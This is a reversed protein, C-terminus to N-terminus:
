GASFPAGVCGRQIWAAMGRCWGPGFHAAVMSEFHELQEGRLQLATEQVAHGVQQIGAVIGFLRRQSLSAAHRASRDAELLAQAQWDVAQDQNQLAPAQPHGPAPPQACATGSPSAPALRESQHTPIPARISTSSSHPVSHWSQGFRVGRGTNPPPPRPHPVRDRPITRSPNSSSNPQMVNHIGCREPSLVPFGREIKIKKPMSEHGSPSGLRRKQGQNMITSDHIRQVQEPQWVTYDKPRYTPQFATERILLSSTRGSAIRYIIDHAVLAEEHKEYVLAFRVHRPGNDFIHVRLINRRQGFEARIDSEVVQKVGTRTVLLTCFEQSTSSTNMARPTQALVNMPRTKVKELGTANLNHGSLGKSDNDISSRTRHSQKGTRGGLVLDKVPKLPAAELSARPEVGSDTLAFGQKTPAQSGRVPGPSPLITNVQPSIVAIRKSVDKLTGKAAPYFRSASVSRGTFKGDYTHGSDDKHNQANGARPCVVVESTEVNRPRAISSTNAANHSDHNFRSDADVDSKSDPKHESQFEGAVANSGSQYQSKPGMETDIESDDSSSGASDDDDDTSHRSDTHKIAPKQTRDLANSRDSPAAHRALAPPVQSSGSMTSGHQQKVKTIACRFAAQLTM